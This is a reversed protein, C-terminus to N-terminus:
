RRGFKFIEREDIAKVHDNIFVIPFYRARVEISSIHRFVVATKEEFKTKKQM